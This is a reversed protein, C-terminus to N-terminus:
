YLNPYAERLQREFEPRVEEAAQRAREVDGLALVVARGGFYHWDVKQGSLEGIRRVLAEIVDKGISHYVCINKGKKYVKPDCPRPTEGARMM